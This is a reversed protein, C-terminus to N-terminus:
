HDKDKVQLREEKTEIGQNQLIQAVFIFSLSSHIPAINMVM